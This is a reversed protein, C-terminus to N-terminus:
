TKMEEHPTFNVFKLPCFLRGLEEVVYKYSRRYVMINRLLNDDKRTYTAIKDRPVKEVITGNKLRIDYYYKYSNKRITLPVQEEYAQVLEGLEGKPVDNVSSVFIIKTAGHKKTSVRLRDTYQSPHRLNEKPMGPYGHTKRMNNIVSLSKITLCIREIESGHPICNKRGHRSQRCSDLIYEVQPMPIPMVSKALKKTVYTSPPQRVSFGSLDRKPPKIGLASWGVLIDKEGSFASMDNFLIKETAYPYERTFTRIQSVQVRHLDNLKKLEREFQQNIPVYPVIEGSFKVNMLESVPTALQKDLYLVYNPRLYQSEKMEKFYTYDEAFNGQHHNDEFTAFPDTNRTLYLFELRTNPPVEDGRRIIKLSLM